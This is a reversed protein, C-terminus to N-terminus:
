SQRLGILNGDADAVVAVQLGGGVDAPQREVTGGAAVLGEIRANIDDTDWYLIPATTGQKAANPDLGVELDGAHYGVYYPSDAYPESGVAATFFTKAADLDGVGFVIISPSSQEPM